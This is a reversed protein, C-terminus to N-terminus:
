TQPLKGPRRVYFEGVTPCAETNNMCSVSEHDMTPLAALYQEAPILEGRLILIRHAAGKYDWEEPKSFVLGWLAGSSLKILEMDLVNTM